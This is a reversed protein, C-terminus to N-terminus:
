YTKTLLQLHTDVGQRIMRLLGPILVGQSNRGQVYVFRVIKMMTDDNDIEKHWFRITGSYIIQKEEQFLQKAKWKLM